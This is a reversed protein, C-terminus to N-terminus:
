SVAAPVRASAEALCEAVISPWDWRDALRRNARRIEVRDREAMAEFSKALSQVDGPNYLGNETDALAESFVGVNPAVIPTGFSAALSPIGSNLEGSRPVVVVDVSDSLMM